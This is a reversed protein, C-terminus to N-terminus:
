AVSRGPETNQRRFGGAGLGVVDLALMASNALEPVETCERECTHPVELLLEGEQM